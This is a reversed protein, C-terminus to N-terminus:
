RTMDSAMSQMKSIFEEETIEWDDDNGKFEQIMSEITSKKLIFGFRAFCNKINKSTIVKTDDIDFRKFMIRLHSRNTYFSPDVAGAIFETYTICGVARLQLSNIISVAENKKLEMGNEKFFAILEKDSLTGNNLYDVSFFVLRLRKIEDIDDFLKVMLKIVEKEFLTISRFRRLRDFLEATIHSKGGMTFEIYNNHLWPLDLADRATLRKAPNITLFGKIIDKADLSITTWIEEDFTFKGKKILYFIKKHNKAIFPPKGCLLMYMMVGLSWYDCKLDYSGDIVEPAVYFPTGVITCLEHGNQYPRSLGFDIMKLESNEKKSAYILNEPKIDRHCISRDHLHNVVQLVEFMIKKVEEETFLKKAVLKAMLTEGSCYELVFHLSEEDQYCEYFKAVHPHDIVKLIELERKLLHFESGLKKKNITKVAYTRRPDLALKAKRVEGFHGSGLIKKDFLYVSKIDEYATTTEWIQDISGLNTVSGAAKGKRYEERLEKKTQLHISALKQSEMSFASSEGRNVPRAPAIATRRSCIAGM